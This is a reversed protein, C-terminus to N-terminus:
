QLFFSYSHPFPGQSASAANCSVWIDAYTNSLGFKDGQDKFNRLKWWIRWITEGNWDPYGDWMESAKTPRDMMWAKAWMIEGEQVDGKSTKWYAVDCCMEKWARLEGESGLRQPETASLYIFM